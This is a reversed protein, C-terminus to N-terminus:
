IDRALESAVTDLVRNLVDDGIREVYVPERADADITKIHECIVYGKTVTQGDLSIRTPYPKATNTIPCVILHGTRRNLLEKSIVVAPRYGAQEHGCTPDFNIKIIDGQKFTV